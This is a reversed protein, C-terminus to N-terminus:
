LTDCADKDHGLDVSSRSSASPDDAESTPIDDDPRENSDQEPDATVLLDVANPFNDPPLTNDNICQQLDLNPEANPLLDILLRLETHRSCLQSPALQCPGQRM